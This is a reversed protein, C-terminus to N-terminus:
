YLFLVSCIATMVVAFIEAGVLYKNKKENHVCHNKKAKMDAAFEENLNFASGDELRQLGNYILYQIALEEKCEECSDIHALFEKLERDDLQDTLFDNVKKQIRNCDM